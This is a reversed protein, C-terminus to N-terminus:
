KSEARKKTTVVVPCCAEVGHLRLEDECASLQRSLTRRFKKLAELRIDLESIKLKLLDRVHRCEEVGGTTLLEKIEHLSFGLEQAEKIFLVREIATHDFLRFGGSTRSARALLGIREYYRLTDITVGCRTAIEGIRLYNLVM